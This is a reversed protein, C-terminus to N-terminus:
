APKTEEPERAPTQQEFWEQLEQFGDLDSGFIWSTGDGMHVTFKDRGHAFAERHNKSWPTALGEEIGRVDSWRYVKARSPIGPVLVVGGEMLLITGRLIRGLFKGLLWLAALGLVLDGVCFLSHFPEGIMISGIVTGVLVFLLCGSGNWFLSGSWKRLNPQVVGLLEGLQHAEDPLWDALHYDTLKM